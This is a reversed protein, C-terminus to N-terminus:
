SNKIRERLETTSWSHTRPIFEIPVLAQATIKKKDKEYDSGLFRINYQDIKLVNALEEETEYPFYFDVYKCAGIQLTRELLSQVPVNKNPRELKPNIHIGVTLEDCRDSCEKLFVVHGAHLLDFAGFTIGRIM